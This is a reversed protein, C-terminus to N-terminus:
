PGPQAPAEGPAARTAQDRGAAAIMAEEAPTLYDVAPPLATVQQASSSSNSAEVLDSQVRLGGLTGALLLPVALALAVKRRLPWASLALASEGGRDAPRKTSM